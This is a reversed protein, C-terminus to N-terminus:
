KMRWSYMYVCFFHNKSERFCINTTHDFQKLHSSKLHYRGLWWHWIKRPYCMPVVCAAWLKSKPLFPYFLSMEQFFCSTKISFFVNKQKLFKIKEVHLHAIAFREPFHIKLLTIWELFLTQFKLLTLSNVLFTVLYLVWIKKKLIYFCILEIKQFFFIM